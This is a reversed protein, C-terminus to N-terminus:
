KKVAEAGYYGIAIADSLDNNSTKVGYKKFVWEITRQKRLERIHNTHWAPKKDPFERKVAEKEAKTFPKNGIASQWAMATVEEVVTGPTILPSIAAGYSYALLIVTRRNQIFASSEFYIADLKGIEKRLSTMYRSARGMRQYINGSGFEVVGYSVLKNGKFVSYALSNSSCDIGMVRPKRKVNSLIGM